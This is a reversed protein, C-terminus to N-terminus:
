SPTDYQKSSEHATEQVPPPIFTDVQRNWEMTAQAKLIM